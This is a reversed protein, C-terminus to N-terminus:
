IRFCYYSSIGSRFVSGHECKLEGNFLVPKREDAEDSRESAEDEADDRTSRSKPRSCLSAAEEDVDM